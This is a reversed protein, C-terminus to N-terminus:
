ENVFLTRLNSPSWEEMKDARLLGTVSDFVEGALESGLLFHMDAKIRGWLEPEQLLGVLGQDSGDDLWALQDDGGESSRLQAMSSILRETAAAMGATANHITGAAQPLLGPLPLLETHM